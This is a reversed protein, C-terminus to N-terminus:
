YIQNQAAESQEMLVDAMLMFLRLSIKKLPYKLAEEFDIKNGSMM